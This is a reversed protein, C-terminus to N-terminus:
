PATILFLHSEALTTHPNAVGIKLSAFAKWIHHENAAEPPAIPFVFQHAPSPWDVDGFFGAVVIASQVIPAMASFDVIDIRIEYKAGLGYIAVGAECEIVFELASNYPFAIGATIAGMKRPFIRVLQADNPGM